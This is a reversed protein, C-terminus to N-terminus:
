KTKPTAAMKAALAQQERMKDGASIQYVAFGVLPVLMLACIFMFGVALLM